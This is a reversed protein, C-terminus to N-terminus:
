CLHSSQMLRLLHAQDSIGLLEEPWGRGFNAYLIRAADAAPLRQLFERSIDGSDWLEWDPHKAVVERTEPSVSRTVLLFKRDADYSCKAIATSTKKPGWEKYHKCQFVWVEGNSIEARIDIGHQSDGQRGYPHASVVRCSMGDKTLLEPHAALFDCFFSEFTEWSFNPDFFPLLKPKPSVPAMQSVIVCELVGDAYCRCGPSVGAREDRQFASLCREVFSSQSDDTAHDASRERKEGDYEQHRVHFRDCREDDEDGTGRGDRAPDRGSAFPDTISPQLDCECEEVADKLSVRGIGIEIVDAIADNSNEKAEDDSPQDEM